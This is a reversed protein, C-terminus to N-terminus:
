HERRDVVTIPIDVADIETLTESYTTLEETADDYFNEVKIESGSQGNKKREADVVVTANRSSSDDEKYDIEVKTCHVESGNEESKKESNLKNEWLGDSDEPERSQNETKVRAIWPNDPSTIEGLCHHCQYPKSGTGVTTHIQSSKDDPLEKNCFECLVNDLKEHTTTVHRQWNTKENFSIDCSKCTFTAEGIHLHMHSELFSKETFRKACVECVFSTYNVHYNIHRKLKRQMSFTKPCFSCKFPKSGNHEDIHDYLESKDAFSKKQMDEIWDEREYLKRTSSSNVDLLASSTAECSSSDLSCISTSIQNTESKVSCNVHSDNKEREMKEILFSCNNNTNNFEKKVFIDESREDNVNEYAFMEEGDIRTKIDPITPEDTENIISGVTSEAVLRYGQFDNSIEITELPCDYYKEVVEEESEVSCIGVSINPLKNIENTGTVEPKPISENESKREDMKPEEEVKTENLDLDQKQVIKKLMKRVDKHNERDQDIGPDEMESDDDIVIIINSNNQMQSNDKGSCREENIKVFKKVTSFNMKKYEGCTSTSDRKRVKNLDVKTFSTEAPLKLRKGLPLPDDIVITEISKSRKRPVTVPFVVIDEKKRDSSKERSGACPDTVPVVEIGALNRVSQSVKEMSIRREAEQRRKMANEVEIRVEDSIYEIAYDDEIGRSQGSANRKNLQHNENSSIFNTLRGLSDTFGLCYVGSASTQSDPTKRAIVTNKNTSKNKLLSKLQNDASECQEKFCYFSEALFLCKKCIVKPLGDDESIELRTFAMLKKPLQSVYFGSSFISVMEGKTSLCTRCTQKFM